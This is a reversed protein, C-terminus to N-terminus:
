FGVAAVRKILSHLEQDVQGSGKSVVTIQSTCGIVQVRSYTGLLVIIQRVFEVVTSIHPPHLPGGVLGFVQMLSPLWVITAGAGVGSGQSHLLLM